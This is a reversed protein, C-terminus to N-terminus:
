KDMLCELLYSLKNELDEKDTYHLELEDTNDGVVDSIIKLGTEEINYLKQELYYTTLGSTKIKLIM